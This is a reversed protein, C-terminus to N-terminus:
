QTGGSNDLQPLHNNLLADAFQALVADQLRPELDALLGEVQAAAEKFRKAATPRSIGFHQAVESDSKEAIKLALITLTADPLESLQRALEQTTLEQEPTPDRDPEDFSGEFHVLASPVYDTLVLEFIRQLEGRRLHPGVAATAIALAETLTEATYVAPARESHLIRIRPLKAIRNAAALLDSDSANPSPSHSPAFETIAQARELLNDIVTRRRGRALTRRVARTLLARANNTDTATTIIYALQGEDLLQTLVVEQVLNELTTPNWAGTESYISPPYRPATNRVARTIEGYWLAGITLDAHENVLDTWTPASM